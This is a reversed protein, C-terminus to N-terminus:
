QAPSQACGFANDYASHRAHMMGEPDEAFSRSPPFMSHEIHQCDTSPQLLTEHILSHRICEPHAVQLTVFPRFGLLTEQSAFQLFLAYSTGSWLVLEVHPTCRNPSCPTARKCAAPKTLATSSASPARSSAPACAQCCGRWSAWGTEKWPWSISCHRNSACSSNIM